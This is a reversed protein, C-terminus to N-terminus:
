HIEEQRAKDNYHLVATLSSRINIMGESALAQLDIKTKAFEDWMSKRTGYVGVWANRGNKKATYAAHDAVAVAQEWSLVKPNLPSFPYMAFGISGSLRGVHGGGLQYQREALNYRIREALQEAARANTNEGIIMFEDGGWRIITDSKRCSTKLVDRVQILAQDGALHGYTDNISKFGDLDIMMFFLSPSIDVTKIEPGAQRTAVFRREALAVSSEISDYLYRRNKLGTLSDTISAELLKENLAKLQENRLSLERTRSNVERKLKASHKAARDLKKNQSRKYNVLTGGIFITYFSYAWPTQWPPPEVHLRFSTDRDSWIGDNNAAKVIFTYDGAPLSTYTAHRIDGPDIWGDDFGELMYHYRNKDSSAYDLAAFKFMIYDDRHGLVIIEPEKEDTSHATALQSYRSHASLVIDPKHTNVRLLAPDFTVLGDTGGFLIQGLSTKLHAGFNFEDGQLGNFRDFHRLSGDVPNLRSLGRNTSIWLFGDVDELVGFVTDSKLGHTKQYKRFIAQNASRDSLAWRNLGGGLTSIWLSGDKSEAINLVANSALSSPDNPDHQFRTFSRTKEDFRNVGGDETGVWLAGSSDRHVAMIRDSSLSTADNPDHRYVEFTDSDPDFRNLGAGYTGVWLRGGHESLLSSVSDSSLGDPEDPSRRYHTFEGSDPDLRNLGGNRTGIWVSNDPGVALSMIRDDSLSGADGPTHRFHDTNGTKLDVRNIGGGYTGVWVVGGASEEIATIVNGSLRSLEGAKVQLYHFADSVYNWKNAGNFTGVWLIEGADQFVVTVRNDSLSGPRIPDHGYRVFAGARPRWENLGNDTGVWLTGERDEYISRVRNHSLSTPDDADHQYRQFSGTSRDFRNLGGQYTGIWLQGRRDEYISRVKDDSLSVPLAPDHRFVVFKQQTHDMRALGADTGVWLKGRSDEFVALVKDSPLSDPKGDSHRYHIFQGTDSDFRNLGGGDTGIWYDGHSDQYIVRVRDNSLSSPDDEAHRFRTFSDTQRDYRNLGGGDTGVWLTGANDVYVSWVWDHSLSGAVGQKHDYVVMEYGDYRNLGEQTGFWIFGQHDQAIANVAGQSLGQRQSIRSFLINRASLGTAPGAQYAVSKAYVPVSYCCALVALLGILTVWFSATRCPTAAM